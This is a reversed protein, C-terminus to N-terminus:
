CFNVILQEMISTPLVIKKQLKSIQREQSQIIKHDSNRDKHLGKMEIRLLRIEEERQGLDQEMKKFEEDQEFIQESFIHSEEQLRSIEATLTSEDLRAKNSRASEEELLDSIKAKLESVHTEQEMTQNLLNLIAEDREEITEVLEKKEKRM